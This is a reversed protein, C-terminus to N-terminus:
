LTISDFKQLRLPVGLDLRLKRLESKVFHLAGNWIAM